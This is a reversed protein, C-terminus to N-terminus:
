GVLHGTGFVEGFGLLEGERIQAPTGHSTESSASPVIERAARTGTLTVRDRAPKRTCLSSARTAM